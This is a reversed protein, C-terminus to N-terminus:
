KVSVYDFEAYGAGGIVQGFLRLHDYSSSTVLVSFTQWSTSTTGVWAFTTGVGIEYLGIAPKWSGDGRARGRVTFSSPFAVNQWAYPYTTGNWAVRLAQGGVISQKTLVANSGATWDAVGVAEMDWDTVLEPKAVNIIGWGDVLEPNIESTLKHQWFLGM